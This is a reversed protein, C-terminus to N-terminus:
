WQRRLLFGALGTALLLISAPEPTPAATAEGFIRVGMQAVVDAEV